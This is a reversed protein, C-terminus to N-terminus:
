CLQLLMYVVRRALQGSLLISAFPKNQHCRHESDKNVNPCKNNDANVQQQRTPSNRYKFIQTEATGSAIKSAQQSCQQLPSGTAHRSEKLGM